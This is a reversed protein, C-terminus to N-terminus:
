KLYQELYLYRFRQNFLRCYSYVLWPLDQYDLLIPPMPVQVLGNKGKSTGGASFVGNGNMAGVGVSAHIDTGSGEDKISAGISFSGDFGYTANLPGISGGVGEAEVGENTQKHVVDLSAITGEDGKTVATTNSVAVTGSGLLSGTTYENTM